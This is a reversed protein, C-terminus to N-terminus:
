NDKVLILKVQQPSNEWTVEPFLESDIEISGKDIELYDKYVIDEYESDYNNEFETGEKTRIPKNNYLYLYGNKDRAIYLKNEM